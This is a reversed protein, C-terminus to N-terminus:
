IKLTKTYNKNNKILHNLRDREKEILYNQIEPSKLIKQLNNENAYIYIKHKYKTNHFIKDIYQPYENLLICVDKVYNDQKFFKDTLKQWNENELVFYGHNIALLMINYMSITQKTPVITKDIIKNWQEASITVNIYKHYALLCGIFSEKNNKLSTHDLNELYYLFKSQSFTNKHYYGHSIDNLFDIFLNNKKKM